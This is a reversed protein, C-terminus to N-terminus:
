ELKFVFNMRVEAETPEGDVTAPTMEPLTGLTRRVEDSLTDDEGPAFKLLDNNKNESYGVIVVNEYKPLDQGNAVDEVIIDTITGDESVRFSATLFGFQGRNRAKKPYRIESYIAEILRSGDEMHPANESEELTTLTYTPLDTQGVLTGTTTMLGLLLIPLSLLYFMRGRPRSSQTLMAIRKKIPSSFLGAVVRPRLGARLLQLGYTKPPMHEVVTADAQFEQLDSLRREMLWQLPHWWLAIRGVLLFLRERDHGYRLHAAEHLLATRELSADIGPPLFIKGFAAFPSAVKRSRIVPYSGYRESTKRASARLHPALRYFIFIAQLVSGILWVWRFVDTWVWESPPKPLPVAGADAGEGSSVYIYFTEAVPTSVAWEITVLPLLLGLAYGSLLFARRWGWARLSGLAYRDYFLVIGWILSLRLLYSM